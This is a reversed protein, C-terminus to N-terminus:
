ERFPLRHPYCKRASSDVGGDASDGAAQCDLPGGLASDDPLAHASGEPRYSVIEGLSARSPSGLTNELVGHALPERPLVCGLVAGAHYAYVKWWLM